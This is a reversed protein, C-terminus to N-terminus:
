FLKLSCVVKGVVELESLPIEETAHDPNASIIKVRPPHASRLLQLRKVDIRKFPDRIAYIGDPTPTTHATDVIVREGSMIVPAMSDGLTEIVILLEASAHLQERVFSPPIGWRELKIPFSHRGIKRVDKGRGRGTTEADNDLEPVSRVPESEFEKRRAIAAEKESDGTGPYRGWLLMQEPTYGVHPAFPKLHDLRLRILGNELRSLQQKSIGSRKVLETRSMGRAERAHFLGTKQPTTRTRKAMGAM